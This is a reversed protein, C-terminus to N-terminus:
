NHVSGGGGTGGPNEIDTTFMVALWAQQGGLADPVQVLTLSGAVPGDPGPLTLEGELRETTPGFDELHGQLEGRAVIDENQTPTASLPITPEPAPTNGRPFLICDKWCNAMAGPTFKVTFFVIKGNKKTAQLKFRNKKNGAPVMLNAVSADTFRLEWSHESDLLWDNTSM